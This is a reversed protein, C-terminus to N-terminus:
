RLCFLIKGQSPVRQGAGEDGTWQSPHVSWLCQLRWQKWIIQPFFLLLPVPTINLVWNIWRCLNLRTYHVTVKVSLHFSCETNLELEMELKFPFCAPPFFFFLSYLFLFDDCYWCFFSDELGRSEILMWHQLQMNSKTCMKQLRIIVQFMLLWSRLPNSQVDLRLCLAKAM